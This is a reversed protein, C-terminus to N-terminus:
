SEPELFLVRYRFISIGHDIKLVRTRVRSLIATNPGLVLFSMHATPALGYLYATVRPHENGFGGEYFIVPIPCACVM